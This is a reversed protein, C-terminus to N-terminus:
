KLLKFIVDMLEDYIAQPRNGRIAETACRELYNRMIVKSLGRTAQIAAAIQTLVDVCPRDQEIMARIGRLQGELRSIRSLAQQRRDPEYIPLEIQKSATAM